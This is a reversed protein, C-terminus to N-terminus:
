KVLELAVQAVREASVSTMCRHDIPCDRLMCPNCEVEERVIRSAPGAPATAVHETPGFVAVTPVGLASALHMAGSDNSLFVRCAATLDMFEALTTEGALNLVDGGARRIAEAMAQCLPRESASGFLAIAGGMEGAVIRAAKVFREPPWQKARSNQAGPSVGVVPAAFGMRRFLELGASRAEGAGALVIPEAEPLRELIGARRLLELYYFREHPPTEGPRPVAIADTLLARRGDRSYGIRRPVGALWMVLASDFSNTFLIAADFRERRAQAAWRLRGRWTKVASSVADVAPERRYLEAVSPRAAVTIRAEPFRARVARLAPLTMVADGLWNTARVVIRAWAM